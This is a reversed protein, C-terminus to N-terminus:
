TEDNRNRRFSCWSFSLSLIIIEVRFCLSWLDSYSWEKRRVSVSLQQEKRSLQELSESAAESWLTFWGQSVLCFKQSETASAPLWISFFCSIFCLKTINDESSLLHWTIQPLQDTVFSTMHKSAGNHGRIITRGDLLHPCSSRPHRNDHRSRCGREFLQLLKPPLFIVLKTIERKEKNRDLCFM